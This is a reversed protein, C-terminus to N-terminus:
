EICINYTVLFMSPGKQFKDHSETFHLSYGLICNKSLNSTRIKFSIIIGPCPHVGNQEGKSSLCYTIKKVSHM